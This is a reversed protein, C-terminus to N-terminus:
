KIFLFQNHSSEIAMARYLMLEDDDQWLWHTMVDEDECQRAMAYDVDGQRVVLDDSWRGLALNHYRKITFKTTRDPNWVQCICLIAKQSSFSTKTVRWLNMSLSRLFCISFYLWLFIYMYTLIKKERHVRRNTQRERIM